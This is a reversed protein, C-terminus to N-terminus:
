NLVQSVVVQLESDLSDCVREQSRCLFFGLLYTFYISWTVSISLLVAFFLCTCIWIRYNGVQTCNERGAQAFTSFAGGMGAKKM